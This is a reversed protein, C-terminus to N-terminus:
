VISLKQAIERSSLNPPAGKQEAEVVLDRIARHYPAHLGNTEALRVIEGNLYEIETPLGKALSQWTSWRAEPHTRVMLRFLRSLFFSPLKLSLIALIRNPDVKPITELQVGAERTVRIGEALLAASIRRAAPDLMGESISQGTLAGIGNNLNILLKSWLLGEIRPTTNVSLGAQRMERALAKMTPRFRGDRSADGFILKGSTALLVRGPELFVANFIASGGVGRGNGLPSDDILDLNRVGNQISVVPTGAPAYPAMAECAGATDQSKVCLLIVDADKVGEPSETAELGVRFPGVLGGIQLGSKRIAAVQAPRGILVVPLGSRALVGGVYSGVAGAGMVAYRM